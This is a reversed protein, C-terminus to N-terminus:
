CEGPESGGKELRKGLHSTKQRDSRSRGFASNLPNKHRSSKFFASLTDFDAPGPTPRYPHIGRLAKLRDPGIKPEFPKVWSM